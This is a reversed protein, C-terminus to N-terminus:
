GVRRGDRVVVRGDKVVARLAAVGVRVLDLLRAARLVVLDARKGLELSGVEAARGLSFAPNITVAALAEELSLGMSFCGLAMAFPLSPSLGGGPNVDTALAVPAGAELLGRAPAFHELRLYFAAIPLLTAVCSAQALAKMGAESVYVLHDASSAGLEAALEAGGTNVLEDAHVRLKFGRARAAELLRRSEAVSFVGQECFVDCFEALGAEAVAPLMEEVLLDLYRDRRGRHEVPVEHAGLFTPVVTLPHAAAADRIAQLSRIEAETALGYGSKVEATTTGCLLMEDLRLMVLRALEERSAARTASVTKVIGGGAAAIEAYSAGALRRGIEDDRDGAFALHTHADVFGPVVAGGEADLSVGGPALSLAHPLEVEPGLWVIRGAAAALAAAEITGTDRLAAGTRPTPGALTHLRGINRVVLDATTM